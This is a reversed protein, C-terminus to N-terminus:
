NVSIRSKGAAKSRYLAQDADGILSDKPRPKKGNYISVGISVSYHVSAKSYVFPVAAIERCIRQALVKAGDLSTDPLVLGFEEGGYRAFTDARRVLSLVRSVLDKIVADGILHGHTDNVKKFDDIDMLILGFASGNRDTRAIERTLTEHFSRHNAIGTLGDTRAQLKAHMDMCSHEIISSIFSTFVHLFQYEDQSPAFGQKGFMAISGISNNMVSLTLVVPTTKVFSFPAERRGGYLLLPIDGKEFAQRDLFSFAREWNVLVSQRLDAEAMVGVHPMAYLERFGQCNIAIVGYLTDLRDNIEELIVRMVEPLELSLMLKQSFHFLSTIDYLHNKIDPAVADPHSMLWLSKLHFLRSAIAKEVMIRLDTISIPKFLYSSVGLEIAEAATELSAFGTIILLEAFDDKKRAARLVDMGSMGPLMLDAIVVDFNRNEILSLATTGDLCTTVACVESLTAELLGCVEEEDDVVLIECEKPRKVLTGM